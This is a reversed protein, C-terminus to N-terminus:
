RLCRLSRERMPPRSCSRWVRESPESFKPESTSPISGTVGRAQGFPALTERESRKVRAARRQAALLPVPLHCNRKSPAVKRAAAPRCASHGACLPAVKTLPASRRGFRGSEMIENSARAAREFHAARPSAVCHPAELPPPPPPPRKSRASARPALRPSVPALSAGAGPSLPPWLCGTTRTLRAAPRGVKSTAVCAARIRISKPREV